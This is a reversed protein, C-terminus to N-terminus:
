HSFVSCLSDVETSGDSRLACSLLNTPLVSFAFCLVLQSSLSIEATM